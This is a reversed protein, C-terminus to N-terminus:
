RRGRAAFAVRLSVVGARHDPNRDAWVELPNGRGAGPNRGAATTPHHFQQMRQAAEANTASSRLLIVLAEDGEWRELFHSVLSRGSRRRPGTRHLRSVEPRVGGRRRVAQGQQRLVADGDSSRDRRRRRYGSPPPRSVPAGFRERAAALIAAKTEESTRRMDVLTPEPLERRDAEGFAGLAQGGDRDRSKASSQVRRPYGHLRKPGYYGGSEVPGDGACIESFAGMQASQAFGKTFLMIPDLFSETHGQLNTAAYGPHAAVSLVRSGALTLDGDCNM